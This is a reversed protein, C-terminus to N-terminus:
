KKPKKLKNRAVLIVGGIVLATFISITAITGVKNDKNSKDANAQIEKLDSKSYQQTNASSSSQSINLAQNIEAIEAQNFRSARYIPQSDFKLNGM